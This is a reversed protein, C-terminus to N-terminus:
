RLQSRDAGDDVDICLPQAQDPLEDVSYCEITPTESLWGDGTLDLYEDYEEASPGSIAKAIKYANSDRYEAVTEFHSDIRLPIQLPPQNTMRALFVFSAVVSEKWKVRIDLLHDDMRKYCGEFLDVFSDRAWIVSGTIDDNSQDAALEPAYEAIEEITDPETMYLVSGMEVKASENADISDRFDSEVRLRIDDNYVFNSGGASSVIEFDELTSEEFVAMIDAVGVPSELRHGVGDAPRVEVPDGVYEKPVIVHAGNGFESVESRAIVSADADTDANEPPM